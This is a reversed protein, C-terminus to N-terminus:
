IDEMVVNIETVAGKFGQLVSNTVSNTFAEVQEWDYFEGHIENDSNYEVKRGNNSDYYEEKRSQKVTVKFKVM